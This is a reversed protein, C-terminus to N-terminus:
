TVPIWEKLTWHSYHQSRDIGATTDIYSGSNKGNIDHSVNVKANGTTEYECGM